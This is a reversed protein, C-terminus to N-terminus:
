KVMGAPAIKDHEGVIFMVPIGAANLREQVSIRNAQPNPNPNPARLFDRSRAPNLRSIARLLFYMEPNTDKFSPLVSFAGLGCEGRRYAADRQCQRISEDSVGGSTGAYVIARCRDQTRLAVATASRGGMSHAIVRVDEIGLYDLLGIVDAGFSMRGRGD